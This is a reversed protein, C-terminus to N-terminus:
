GDWRIVDDVRKFTDRWGQQIIKKVDMTPSRCLELRRAGLMRVDNGKSVVAAVM